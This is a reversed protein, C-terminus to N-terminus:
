LVNIAYSGCVVSQLMAKFNVRNGSGHPYRFIRKVVHDFELFSKLMDEISGKVNWSEVSEEFLLKDPLIAVINLLELNRCPYAVIRRDLGVFTTIGGKEVLFALDPDQRLKEAEILFRYASHGSAVANLKEGLVAERVKSHIGDAGVTLFPFSGNVLSSMQM